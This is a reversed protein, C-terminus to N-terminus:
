DRYQGKLQEVLSRLSNKEADTLTEKEGKAYVGLLIVTEIILIDIYLIRTSGSKGRGEFAFRMKRLGGTGPIVAGLRPNKKIEEQLRALDGDSLGLRTWGRDFEPLQIFEREM